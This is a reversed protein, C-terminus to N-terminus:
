SKGALEEDGSDKKPFTKGGRTLDFAHSTATFEISVSNATQTVKVDYDKHTVALSDNM